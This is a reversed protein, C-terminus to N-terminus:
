ARPIGQTTARFLMEQTTARSPPHVRSVRSNHSLNALTAPILTSTTALVSPDLSIARRLQQNVLKTTKPRYLSHEYVPVRGLTATYSGYCTKGCM